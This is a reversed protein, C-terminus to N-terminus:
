LVRLLITDNNLRPKVSQPKTSLNDVIKQIKAKTASKLEKLTIEPKRIRITYSIQDDYGLVTTGKVSLGKGKYVVLFRKATNYTWLEDSGIIDEPAISQLHLTADDKKYKVKKVLQSKSKPKSKRRNRIIKNNESLQHAADYIKKVFSDEEAWKEFHKMIQKATIHNAEMAMLWNYVDFEYSSDMIYKDIEGELSCIIADNKRKVRDQISPGTATSIPPKKYDDTLRQLQKQLKETTEMEFQFGRDMMRAVFGITRLEWEPVYNIKFNPFTKKVWKKAQASDHFYHYWNLNRLLDTKSLSLLGNPVPETGMYKEDLSKPIRINKKKRKINNRRLASKEMAHDSM